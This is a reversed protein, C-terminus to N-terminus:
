NIKIRSTQSLSSVVSANVVLGGERPNKAISAVVIDVTKPVNPHDRTSQFGDFLLLHKKGLM